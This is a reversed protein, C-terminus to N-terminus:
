FPSADACTATAPGGRWAWSASDKAPSRASALLEAVVVNVTCGSAVDSDIDGDLTLLPVWSVAVRRSASVPWPTAPFCIVNRRFPAGTPVAGVPWFPAAESTTLLSRRDSRAPAE